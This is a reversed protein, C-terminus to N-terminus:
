WEKTGGFFLAGDFDQTSKAQSKVAPLFVVEGPHMPHHVPQSAPALTAPEWSHYNHKPVANQRPSMKSPGPLGSGHGYFRLFFSKSQGEAYSLEFRGAM